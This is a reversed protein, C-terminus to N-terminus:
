KKARREAAAALYARTDRAIKDASHTDRIALAATSMKEGMGDAILAMKEAIAPADGVPALFGNVGCTVLESPGFDCDTSVVPTGCALAEIIGNPMGEHLSTLLFMGGSELERPVNDTRGAFIVKDAISMNNATAKLSDLEDGGGFIKLYHDPHSESFVAFAALMTPYDKVPALRGTAVIKHIDRAGYPTPSDPMNPAFIGNPIVASKAQTEEPYYSKAGETLFIFGDARQSLHKKAWTKPRSAGERYPNSHESGVVAYKMKGRAALAFALNNIGFCYVADPDIEALIQRTRRLRKPIMKIGGGAMDMSIMTVSPHLEYASSAGDTVLIYVDDGMDALRSSLAAIVREAGGGQMSGYYFVTKM